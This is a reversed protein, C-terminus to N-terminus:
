VKTEEATLKSTDFLEKYQEVTQSDGTAKNPNNSLKVVNTNNAKSAKCVISFPRFLAVFSKGTGQVIDNANPLCDIFDNTLLTGWGFAVNTQDYYRNSLSIIKNEDLGDSFIILKDKPDVDHNKWFNLYSTAEEVCNGSDQRFGKWNRAVDSALDKPMKDLFSDTTYTDPLAIRLGQDYLEQWQKLVEYQATIKNESLATVVSWLEHANTGIPMLDYKQAFHVNSTGVFQDGLIEICMEIAHAQWLFSHRRRQGFDAIKAHPAETKIRKLKTALKDTAKAYMRELQIKSMRRMFYRAYLENVIPLVYLEWFTDTAWPGTFTAVWQGDEKRLEYDSLQLNRLYEIYGPDFLYGGYYDQCRLYALTTNRWKLTRVHDLQARLDRESIFEALRIEKKRNILKFEIQVSPYFKWIFYGMTLKYFDVDDLNRIIYDEGHHAANLAFNTM